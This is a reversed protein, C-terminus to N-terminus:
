GQLFGPQEDFGLEHIRNELLNLTVGTPTIQSVQSFPVWLMEQPTKIAMYPDIVKPAAEPPPVGYDANRYVKEVTGIRRGESDFVPTGWQIAMERMQREPDM